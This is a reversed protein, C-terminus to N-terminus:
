LARFRAGPAGEQEAPAGGPGSNMGEVHPGPREADPTTDLAGALPGAAAGEPSAPFLESLVAAADPFHHVYDQASPGEGAQRRYYVDLRVLERVVALRLAGDAGDLFDEPRPVQGAQWSQEFRCCIEDLRWVAEEPLDDLLSPENM